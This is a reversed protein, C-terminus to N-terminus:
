GERWEIEFLLCLYERERFRFIDVIEKWTSNESGRNSIRFSQLGHAESRTSRQISHYSSAIHLLLRDPEAHEDFLKIRGNEAVARFQVLQKEHGLVVVIEVQVEAGDRKRRGKMRLVQNFRSLLSRTTPQREENFVLMELPTKERPGILEEVQKM